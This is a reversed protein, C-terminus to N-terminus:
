GWRFECPRCTGLLPGLFAFDNALKFQHISLACVSQFVYASHVHGSNHLYKGRYKKKNQALAVFVTMQRTWVSKENKMIWVIQRCCQRVDFFGNQLLVLFSINCTISRFLNLHLMCSYLKIPQLKWFLLKQFFFLFLYFFLQCGFNIDVQPFSAFIRRWGAEGGGVCVPRVFDSPASPVCFLSCNRWGILLLLNGLHQMTKRQTVVCPCNILREWSHKRDYDIPNNNARDECASTWTRFSGRMIKSLRKWISVRHNREPPSQDFNNTQSVLCSATSTQFQFLM